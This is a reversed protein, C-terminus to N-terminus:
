ILVKTEIYKRLEQGSGSWKDLLYQVEDSSYPEHWKVSVNVIFKDEDYMRMPEYQYTSDFPGKHYSVSGTELFIEGNSILIISHRRSSLEVPSKRGGLMFGRDSITSKFFFVKNPSILVNSPTWKDVIM